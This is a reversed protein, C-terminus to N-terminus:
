ANASTETATPRSISPPVILSARSASPPTACLGHRSRAASSASAPAGAVRSVKARAAATTRRSARPKPWLSKLIASARRPTTRASAWAAAPVGCDCDSLRMLYAGHGGAREAFRSRPDISAGLDGARRFVGGLVVHGIERVPEHDRRGDGLPPDRAAVKGVRQADLADGGNEGVGIPRFHRRRVVFILVVDSGPAFREARKVVVADVEAELWDREHNSLLRLDRTERRRKHADRVLLFGMRGIEFAPAAM